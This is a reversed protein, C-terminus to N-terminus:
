VTPTPNAKNTGPTNSGTKEINGIPTQNDFSNPQVPQDDPQTARLCIAGAEFTEPSVNVAFSQTAVRLGILLDKGSDMDLKLDLMPLLFTFIESFPADPDFLTAKAWTKTVNTPTIFVWNGNNVMSAADGLSTEDGLMFSIDAAASQNQINIFDNEIKSSNPKTQVVLNLKGGDDNYSVKEIQDLPYSLSVVLDNNAFSDTLLELGSLKSYNNDTKTPCYVKTEINKAKLALALALAAGISDVNMQPVAVFATKADKLLNKIDTVNYNKMIPEGALGKIKSSEQILVTSRNNQSM